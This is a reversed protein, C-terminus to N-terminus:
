MEYMNKLTSLAWLSIWEPGQLGYKKIAPAMQFSVVVAKIEALDQKM